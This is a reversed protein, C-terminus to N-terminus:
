PQNIKKLKPTLTNKKAKPTKTKIPTIQKRINYIYSNYNLLCTFLIFINGNTTFFMGNTHLIIYNILNCLTNQRFLKVM